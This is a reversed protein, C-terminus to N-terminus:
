ADPLANGIALITLGVFSKRLNFVIGFTNLGDILMEILIYTYLLGVAVSLTTFVIYWTPAQKSDLTFYLVTFLLM